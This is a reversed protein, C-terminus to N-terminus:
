FCAYVSAQADIPLCGNDDLNSKDYCRERKPTPDRKARLLHGGGRGHANFQIIEIHDRCAALTALFSLAALAPLM